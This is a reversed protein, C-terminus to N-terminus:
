TFTNNNTLKTSFFNNILFLNDTDLNFLVSLYNGYINTVTIIIYNNLSNLAASRTELTNIIASLALIVNMIGFTVIMTAALPYLTKLLRM